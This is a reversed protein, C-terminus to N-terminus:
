VEKINKWTVGHRLSWVYPRTLSYRQAIEKDSATSARIQRVDAESLKAAYHAEGRQGGVGRRRQKQQMDLMNDAQTGLFLHSPNVCARNDCRHLVFLGDAIPGYHETWSVRHVRVVHGHYGMRGYGLRDRYGRWQWCDDVMEIHALLRELATAM